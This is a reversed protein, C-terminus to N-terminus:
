KHTLAYGAPPVPPVGGGGKRMKKFKCEGFSLRNTCFKNEIFM